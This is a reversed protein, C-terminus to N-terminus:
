SVFKDCFESPKLTVLNNSDVKGGTSLTIGCQYDGLHDMYSISPIFLSHGQLIAGSLNSAGQNMHMWCYDQVTTNAPLDVASCHMVMSQTEVVKIVSADNGGVSM